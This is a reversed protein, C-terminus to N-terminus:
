YDISERDFHHRISHVHSITERDFYVLFIGQANGRSKRLFLNIIYMVNSYPIRYVTHIYIYIYIHKYIYIYLCSLLPVKWPAM